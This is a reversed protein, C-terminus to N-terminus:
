SQTAHTDEPTDLGRKYNIFPNFMINEYKPNMLIQKLQNTKHSIEFDNQHDPFAKDVLAKLLGLRRMPEKTFSYHATNGEYILYSLIPYPADLGQAILVESRDLIADIVRPFEHFFIRDRTSKGLSSDYKLSKLFSDYIFNLDSAQAPRILFTEM